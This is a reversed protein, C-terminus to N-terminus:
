EARDKIVLVPLEREASELYLGYKALAKTIGEFDYPSQLQVHINMIGTYKTENVVELNLFGSIYVMLDSMSGRSNTYELGDESIHIEPKSLPPNMKKDLDKCKLVLCNIKRNEVSAKVSLFSEVSALMIKCAEQVSAGAPLITEYNFLTNRCLSDFIATPANEFLFPNTLLPNDSEIVTRKEFCNIFLQKNLSDCYLNGMLIKIVQVPPESGLVLRTFSSNQEQGM